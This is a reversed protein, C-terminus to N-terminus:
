YLSRRKELDWGHSHLYCAFQLKSLLRLEQDDATETAALQALIVLAFPNDSAMLEERQDKFDMLKIIEYTRTTESGWIRRVYRNPRWNKHTDTLVALSAVNKQYRDYIRYDYAHMREPFNAEPSSQIELHCLCWQEQSNNLYVKFLKDVIKTGLEAQIGVAQLEQELMEYGQDRNIDQFAAPWCLEFFDKLYIVKSNGEM